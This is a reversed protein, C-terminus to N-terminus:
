LGSKQFCSALAPSLQLLKWPALVWCTTLVVADSVCEQLEGQWMRTGPWEKASWGGSDGGESLHGFLYTSHGHPLERTNFLQFLVATASAWLSQLQRLHDWAYESVFGCHPVSLPTLNSPCRLWSLCPRLLVGSASFVCNQLHEAPCPKSRQLLPMATEQDRGKGAPALVKSDCTFKPFYVNWVSRRAVVCCNQKEFTHVYTAPWSGRFNGQWKFCPDSGPSAQCNQPPWFWSFVDDLARSM